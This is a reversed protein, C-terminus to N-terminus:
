QGGLTKKQGTKPGEAQPLWDKKKQLSKFGSIGEKKERKKTKTKREITTCPSREGSVGNMSTKKAAGGGGEKKKRQPKKFSLAKTQVEQGTPSSKKTPFVQKKKIKDHEKKKGGLRRRTAKKKKIGGKKGKKFATDLQGVRKEAGRERTEKKQL